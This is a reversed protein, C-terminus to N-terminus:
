GILKHYLEYNEDVFQKWTKVEKKKANDKLKSLNDPDNILAEIVNKLESIDGAKVIIGANGVIDKAGVHDSVIVPIGFSLAELVTFGFTEYWISPAVLVDTNSMIEPLDSQTFGNEVVKLYKREDPVTNFMKLMFNCKGSDWLEDLAKILVNYGKFPRAPALCTIRLKNSKKNEVSKHRTRINKHSITVVKNEPLEFYDEYISKTISSNFHILDIKQFMKIYYNRLKKYENAKKQEDETSASNINVIEEDFFNKRHNKRIKKLLFSDKLNRYLGSQMIQIKKLSLATSNCQICDMCGHDETCVNGQKYLTVKPCIGFYDHSTFMTKIKLKKTVDFFEKHIGMLTHIHVVDPKIKKLFTEYVSFDCCRTYAKIDEIGEDLPVPLPNSLEYNIIGKINKRKKIQTKKSIFSIEGPWLAIVSGGKKRQIDMLDMCYRTLGGSRYPPFGLFYHMIVM